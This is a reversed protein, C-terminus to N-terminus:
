GGGAGGPPPAAGGARGPAPGDAAPSDGSGVDGWLDSCAHGEALPDDASPALLTERGYIWARGTIAADCEAGGGPAPRVALCELRVSTGVPSFATWEDGARAEGRAAACAMRALNGTGCPSRDLRGPPMVNAGLLDGGPTRARAFLYSVGALEPRGPPAADAGAARAAELLSMGAACLARASGPGVELGLDAADALAFTDGGFALDLRVRGLGPAEVEISGASRAGKVELRLSACRGGRTEAEVPVLGAATELVLRSSGDRPAGARGTEVLAASACLSNSGSMAHAGDPQLVFLAADASPDLPPLLLNTSMQPFGRPERCFLRALRAGRGDGAGNLWALREGPTSGPPARVGSLVVRGVEGAGHALVTEIEPELLDDLPGAPM